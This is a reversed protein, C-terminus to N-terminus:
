FRLAAYWFLGKGELARAIREPTNSQFRTPIKYDQEIKGARKAEIILADQFRSDTIAVMSAICDRDSQGRLNAIGYETVVIDRLHRGVTTQGYRWVINSVTRGATERTARLTMLSRADDLAFAQTVLDHQGGVGSVVRGDELTDSIAAGLATVMMATNVFRADVRARRKQDEQSYVENVFSIAKMHFRDREVEPMDKLARYFARGVPQTAEALAVHQAVDELANDPRHHCHAEDLALAKATSALTSSAL